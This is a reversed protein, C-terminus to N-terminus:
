CRATDHPTATHSSRGALFRGRQLSAFWTKEKPRRTSFGDVTERLRSVYQDKYVHKCNVEEIM